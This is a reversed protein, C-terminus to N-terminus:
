RGGRRQELLRQPHAILLRHMIFIAYWDLYAIKKNRRPSNTRASEASRVFGIKPFLNLRLVPLSETTRIVQPPITNTGASMVAVQKEGLVVYSNYCMGDPLTYQSEFLDLEADDCGVYKINKM